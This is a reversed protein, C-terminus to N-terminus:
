TQAPGGNPKGSAELLLVLIKQEMVLCLAPGGGGQSTCRAQWDAINFTLVVEGGEHRVAFAFGCTPCTIEAV